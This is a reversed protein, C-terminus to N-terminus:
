HFDLSASILHSVGRRLVNNSFSTSGDVKAVLIAPFHRFVLVDSHLSIFDHLKQLGRSPPLLRYLLNQDTTSGSTTSNPKNGYLSFDGTARSLDSIAEAVKLSQSLVTKDVQHDLISKPTDAINVKLM